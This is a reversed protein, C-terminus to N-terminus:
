NTAPLYYTRLSFTVPSGDTTSEGDAATGSLNFNLSVVDFLRRSSEIVKVFNKARMLLEEPEFKGFIAQAEEKNVLLIEVDSLL